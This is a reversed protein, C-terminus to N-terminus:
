QKKLMKTVNTLDKNPFVLQFLHVGFITIAIWDFWSGHFVHVVGILLAVLVPTLPGSLSVFAESKIDKISPRIISLLLGSSAVFGVNRGLKWKVTALHSTEHLAISMVICGWVLLNLFIFQPMPLLFKTVELLLAVCIVFVLILPLLKKCVISCMWLLLVLYNKTQPPDYRQEWITPIIRYRICVLWRHIAHRWTEKINLLHHKSLQEALNTVDKLVDKTDKAHDKAIISSITGFTRKGDILSCFQAATANIPYKQAMTSDELTNTHVTLGRPLVPVLNIM